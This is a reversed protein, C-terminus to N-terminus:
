CIETAFWRGYASELAIETDGPINSVRTEALYEKATLTGAADYVLVNAPTAYNLGTVKTRGYMVSTDFMCRVVNTAIADTGLVAYLSGRTATFTATLSGLRDGPEYTHAGDHLIWYVPGNQAMGFEDALVEAPGNVLLPCRMLTSDIPRKVKILNYSDTVDLTDVIQMLGFAPITHTSDNRFFIPTEIPELNDVPRASQSREWAQTARWIRQKQDRNFELRKSPM